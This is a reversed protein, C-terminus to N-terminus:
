PLPAARWKPDLVKHAGNLLAHKGDVASRNSSVHALVRGRGQIKGNHECALVTGRGRAPEVKGGRGKRAEDEKKGGGLLAAAPIVTIRCLLKWPERLAVVTWSRARAHTRAHARAHSRAHTRARARALSRTHM